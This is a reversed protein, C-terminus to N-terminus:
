LRAKVDPVVNRPPSFRRSLGTCKIDGAGAEVECSRTRKTRKRVERRVMRPTKGFDLYGGSNYKVKPLADRGSMELRGIHGETEEETTPDHQSRQIDLLKM